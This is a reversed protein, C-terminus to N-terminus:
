IVLWKAAGNSYQITFSDGDVISLPASQRIQNAATPGTLAAFSLNNAGVCSWTVRQGDRQPVFSNYTVPGLTTDVDIIYDGVGPLAVDNYTGAAPAILEYTPVVLALLSAITVKVNAGGQVLEALEAGSLPLSASPLTSIKQNAM